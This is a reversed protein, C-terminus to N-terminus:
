HLCQLKYIYIKFRKYEIQDSTNYSINMKLSM